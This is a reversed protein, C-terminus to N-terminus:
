VIFLFFLLLGHNCEYSLSAWSIECAFHGLYFSGESLEVEKGEFVINEGNKVATIIPAIAANGSFFFFFNALRQLNIVNWMYVNM